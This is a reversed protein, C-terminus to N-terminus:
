LSNLKGLRMVISTQSRGMKAAIYKVSKGEQHLKLLFQDAKSTWKKGSNPHKQ